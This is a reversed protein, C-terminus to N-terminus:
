LLAFVCCWFSEVPFINYGKIIKLIQDKFVQLEIRVIYKFNSGLHNRTEILQTINKDKIFCLYLFAISALFSLALLLEWLKPGFPCLPPWGCWTFLIEKLVNNKNLSTMDKSSKSNFNSSLANWKCPSQKWNFKGHLLDIIQLLCKEKTSHNKFGKNSWIKVWTKCRCISSQWKIMTAASAQEIKKEVIRTTNGTFCLPVHPYSQGADTHRDPLWM